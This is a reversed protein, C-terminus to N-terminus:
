SRLRGEALWKDILTDLRKHLRIREPSGAIAYQISPPLDFTKPDTDGWRVTLDTPQKDQPM